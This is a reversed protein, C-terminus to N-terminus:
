GEKLSRKRRQQEKYEILEQEPDKWARRYWKIIQFLFAIAAIIAGFLQLRDSLSLQPYTKAIWIGLSLFGFSERGKELEEARKKHWDELVM